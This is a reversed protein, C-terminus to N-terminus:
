FANLAGIEFTSSIRNFFLVRTLAVGLGQFSIYMNIKKEYAAVYLSKRWAYAARIYRTKGQKIMMRNRVNASESMKMGARNVDTEYALRSRSKHNFM